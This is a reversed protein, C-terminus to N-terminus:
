DGAAAIIEALASVHEDTTIASILTGPRLDTFRAFFADRAQKRKQPPLADFAALITQANNTALTRRVRDELPEQAEDEPEPEPDPDAVRATRIRGVTAAKAPPQLADERERDAEALAIGRINAAKVLAAHDDESIHGADFHAVLRVVIRGL